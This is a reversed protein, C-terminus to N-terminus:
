IDSKYKIDFYDLVSKMNDQMLICTELLYNKDDHLQWM